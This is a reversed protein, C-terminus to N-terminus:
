YVPHMQKLTNASFGGRKFDKAPERPLSRRHSMLTLLFFSLCLIERGPPRLLPESWTPPISPTKREKETHTYKCCCLISPQIADGVQHVHTQTLELRQHHVPFGPTSCDMSDCLALCLQTVSSFQLVHVFKQKTKVVGRPKSSSLEGVLRQIRPWSLSFM